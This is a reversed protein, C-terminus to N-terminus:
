APTHTYLIANGQKGVATIAGMERLCYAMKQALRRPRAAAKALDLTTFPDPLTSPILAALDAPTQFLCDDVVQLLCREHTVWGRRRWRRGGGDYRRVVEEQILLVHLSFNPSPLLEPFSVLEVFLEEIAGRKPSKRRSKITQGDATLKAIWKEQAIPYVLRVPHRPVLEFLKRKIAAFSRTQIEVLLDNRLIDIVFRDVSAEFQDGPRAYWAKLAAHLPKENLTGIKNSM